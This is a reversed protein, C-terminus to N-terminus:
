LDAETEHARLHTYSVPGSVCSTLLPCPTATHSKSQRLGTCSVANHCPSPASARRHAHLHLATSNQLRLEKALTHSQADSGPAAGGLEEGAARRREAHEGARQEAAQFGEYVWTLGTQQMRVRQELDGKSLEASQLKKEIASKEQELSRVREKEARVKEAEQARDKTATQLQTQLSNKQVTLSSVESELKSLQQMGNKAFDESKALQERYKGIETELSECRQRLTKSDSATSSLDGKTNRLEMELERVRSDLMHMQKLKETAEHLQVDLVKLASAATNAREREALMAGEITQHNRLKAEAHSIEVGRREFETTLRKADRELSEAKQLYSKSRVMEEKLKEESASYKACLQDFAEKRQDHKEKLEVVRKVLDGHSLNEFDEVDEENPKHAGGKSKILNSQTTKRASPPRPKKPDGLAPLKRFSM